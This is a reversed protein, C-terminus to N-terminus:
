GRQASAYMQEIADSYRGIVMNRKLKMTATLCGNDVSWPELCLTVRRVKAYGPFDKLLQTVRAQMKQVLKADRISEPNNPDLGYQAALEPRDDLPRNATVVIGGTFM